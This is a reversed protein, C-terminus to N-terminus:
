TEPLLSYLHWPSQEHSLVFCLKQNTQQPLTSQYLYGTVKKNNFIFPVKKTSHIQQTVGGYLLTLTGPVSTIISISRPSKPQYWPLYITCQERVENTWRQMGYLANNRVPLLYRKCTRAISFLNKLGPIRRAYTLINYVNIMFLGLLKKHPPNHENIIMRIEESRRPSGSLTKTAPHITAVSLVENIFLFQHGTQKLRLWLDWDMVYHLHPKVKGVVDLARQRVFCSPQYITDVLPLQDLSNSISPFYMEFSGDARVFVAHGFVVDVDPNEEFTRSVISFTDPFFYDDANLWIAINGTTHDWGEQIAAAQGDDKHHYQYTIIDKYNQIIKQASNDPTADLVALEFPEKQARVSALATHIFESQKYVPTSIKFRLAM